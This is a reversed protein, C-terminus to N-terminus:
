RLRANGATLDYGLTAAVDGCSVTLEM